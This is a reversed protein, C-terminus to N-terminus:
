LGKEGTKAERWSLLIKIKNLQYLFNGRVGERM